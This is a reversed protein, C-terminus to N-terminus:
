EGLAFQALASLFKPRPLTPIEGVGSRPGAHAADTRPMEAAALSDRNSVESVEISTDISAANVRQPPMLQFGLLRGHARTLAAHTRAVNSLTNADVRQSEPRGAGVSTKRAIHDHWLSRVQNPDIPSVGDHVIVVDSRIRRRVVELTPGMGRRHRQRRVSIQPYCASLEEAASYTDDTSGDDVILVSFDPTLESALELIEGVCSRLRSEGNHVPLVITLSPTLV